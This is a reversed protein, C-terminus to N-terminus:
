VAIWGCHRIRFGILGLGCDINMAQDYNYVRILCVGSDLDFVKM